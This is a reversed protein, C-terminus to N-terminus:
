GGIPIYSGHTHIVAQSRVKAMYDRVLKYYTRIYRSLKADEGFDEIELKLKKRLVQMSIGRGNSNWEKIDNLKEAIEEARQRKTAVTVKTGKTKTRKWNKFKYLALWEKLLSISLEKAQEYKYLEAPDFKELLYAMEATTLSGDASKKVLREYQALYGLAPVWRDSGPNKVQPDIPGLISFYDMHIADGSMALVTGASMAYNPIVFEVRRYNRRLTEAIRQVAEIYGGSTELVVVLTRKKNEIAEVADRILDDIGFALPGCFSLADAKMHQQVCDLSSDLRQQIVLNSDTLDVM